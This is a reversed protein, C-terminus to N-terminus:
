GNILNSQYRNGTPQSVKPAQNNRTAYFVVAFVIITFIALGIFIWPIAYKLATMTANTLYEGCPVSQLNGTQDIVYCNANYGCYQNFSSSIGLESMSDQLDSSSIICVCENHITCGPCVQTFNVTGTNGTADKQNITVDSIICVDSNCEYKCGSPPDYLQISGVQHCLPYCPVNGQELSTPTPSCSTIVAGSPSDYVVKSEADPSIFCSCWNTYNYDVSMKDYTTKGCISDVGRLYTQCLGPTNVSDTCLNYLDVQFSNYGAQNPYTLKYSNFYSTLLLNASAQATQLGELTYKYIGAADKFITQSFVGPCDRQRWCNFYEDNLIYGNGSCFNLDVESPCVFSM